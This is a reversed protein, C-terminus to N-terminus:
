DQFSANKIICEQLLAPSIKSGAVHTGASDKKKDVMALPFFSLLVNLFSFM